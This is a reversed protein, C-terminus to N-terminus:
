RPPTGTSLAHPGTAPLASAGTPGDAGPTGVLGLARAIFTSMEARSVRDSPCYRLVRTGCGVTIRSAALADINEAHYNGSTDVFGAPAAPPLGLARVLFSAMQARDVFDDPCYRRPPTSACGQTIGLTSLRMVHPAWWESSDVDEFHSRVAPPEGDDLARVLWVAMVWRQIPSRPCFQRPACQTRPYIAERILADISATHVGANGIDSYTLPGGELAAHGALSTSATGVRTPGHRFMPWADPTRTPPLRYAAIRTLNHPTDFGTVILHRTGGITGVAPATEHSYAYSVRDQRDFAAELLSGDRGDLLALGWDSGVAVDQDDDGDLDAIVAPSTIRGTGFGGFVPKVQWQLSGDGNWAYVNHDFSGVVVEPEGDADVDGIVPSAWVTGRTRVPWGEVDSGDDLHFAWVRSRDGGDGVSCHPNARSTCEVHWNEGMGVVAEFRGDGNVDGIAPSSHFVENAYRNWLAVPAGDRYDIARFIGGLHDVYGGPTSDGGIFIEVDSDGDVDFLAPSSWVTDDNNIPFGPLPTGTGDVAWIYFDWSGFVVDVNGDGDVDGIAPTAYTGECWGDAVPTAGHWLSATDRSRDFAWEIDGTSGDFSIVSGNQNAVWTSGVGVIVEVEGDGDIDAVAPSSDIATASSQARCSAEANIGPVAAAEWKLTGDGEYARLMGDQHGLVVENLGDADIDAIVPSSSRNWGELELSWAQPYPAAPAGHATHTVATLGALLSMAVVALSVAGIRSNRRQRIQSSTSAIM